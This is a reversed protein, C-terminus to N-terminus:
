FCAFWTINASPAREDYLRDDKGVYWASMRVTGESSIMLYWHFANTQLEYEDPQLAKKDSIHNMAQAYVVNLDPDARVNDAETLFDGSREDLGLNIRISAGQEVAERLLNPNGEVIRGQDETKLLARWPRTDASWTMAKSEEGRKGSSQGIGYEYSRVTGTTHALIYHFATDRSIDYKAPVSWGAQMVADLLQAAVVDGAVRLNSAEFTVDNITVRIRHGARVQEILEKTTGFEPYGTSDHQYIVRWCTDAYWDLSVADSNHRSGVGKGVAWRVNDRHGNTSWSSFWFFPRPHFHIRGKHITQGIHKVNQGTVVGTSTEVAVNHMPFAYGRDRMVARVAMTRAATWLSQLSGRAASGDIYNSFVPRDRDSLDKTYWYLDQRLETARGSDELHIVRGSTCIMMYRRPSEADVHTGNHALHSLSEACVEDRRKHLNDVRLHYSETVGAIAVKVDKGALVHDMLTDKHGAWAMGEATNAYVLTWPRECVSRVDPEKRYGAGAQGWTYMVVLLSTLVSCM